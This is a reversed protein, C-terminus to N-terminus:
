EEDTIQRHTTLIILQHAEYGDRYPPHNHAYTKEIFGNNKYFSLRARSIEDVVPDIELLVIKNTSQRFIGLVQSGFGRGRLEDNIAFHEIYIYSDFEWYSIFGIFLDNDSFGSLRYNINNFAIQQKVDTRQEFIPFSKAYLEKFSNYFPHKSNDIKFTIVLTSKYIVQISYVFNLRFISMAHVIEGERYEGEHSIRM